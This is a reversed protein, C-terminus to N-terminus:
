FEVPYYTRNAGKLGLTIGFNPREGLDEVRAVVRGDTQIYRAHYVHLPKMNELTFVLNAYSYGSMHIDATYRVAFTHKGPLVRVWLPCGAEACSTPKGDVSTVTAVVDTGTEQDVSAFVATNQLPPSGDYMVYPARHFACGVLPVALVLSALKKM